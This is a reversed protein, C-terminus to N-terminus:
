SSVFLRTAEAKQCSSPHARLSRVGDKHPSREATETGCARTPTRQDSRSHPQAASFSRFSYSQMRSGPMPKLHGMIDVGYLNIPTFHALPLLESPRLNNIGSFIRGFSSPSVITYSNVRSLGYDQRMQQVSSHHTVAICKEETLLVEGLALTVLLRQNTAFSYTKRAWANHYRQEGLRCYECWQKM